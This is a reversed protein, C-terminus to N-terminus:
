IIIGEDIQEFNIYSIKGKQNIVNKILLAFIQNEIRSNEEIDENSLWKIYIGNLYGRIDELLAADMMM